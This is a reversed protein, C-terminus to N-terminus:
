SAGHRLRRCRDHPPPRPADRRRGAHRGRAGRRHGRRGRQAVAAAPLPARRLRRRHEVPPERRASGHVDRLAAAHRRRLRRVHRRAHRREEPEQGDERVRPAGAPRRACYRGDREVVDGAEVYVGREDTYPTPRSTARTSCVVSRSSPPSTASTTCCRTGSGRTCCTCCQTSWAVSTSTSVARPPADLVARGRSRDLADDNTPTSTASTTGVRARGSRCRTRRAGTSSCATASISNWWQGTPRARSPRSRIPLRRRRRGLVTPEFDTLEPLEVPLM